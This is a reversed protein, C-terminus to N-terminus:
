AALRHVMPAALLAPAVNTVIALQGLAIAVVSWIAAPAAARSGSARINDAAGFVLGIALTPGWGIAYMVTAIVLLQVGVRVYLRWGSSADAWLAYAVGTTLQAGVLLTLLVGLSVPAVLGSRTGLWLAPAVLIVALESPGRLRARLREWFGRAM